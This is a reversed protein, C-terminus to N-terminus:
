LIGKSISTVLNNLISFLELYFTMFKEWLPISFFAFISYIATSLGGGGFHGGRYKMLRVVSTQKVKNHKQLM